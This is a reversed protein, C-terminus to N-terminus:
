GGLRYGAGRVTEILSAAGPRDLKRRLNAVHVDVTNSLGDYDGDWVHDYLESRSVVEGARTLLYHLVAFERATLPITVGSRRVLRAAVDVEIEGARLVVQRAGTPRRLLARVRACLEAMDFPKTLYDDAGADLGAVKDTTADRATLMLVAVATDDRRWGHCLTVGDGDPLGLDLVVLDYPHTRVDHDADVASTALDVAHGEQRLAKVVLPGLQRDDEVVLLRM